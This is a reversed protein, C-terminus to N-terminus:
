LRPSHHPTTPPLANELRAQQAHAAFTSSRLVEMGSGAATTEIPQQNGKLKEVAEEVLEMEHNCVPQDNKLWCTLSEAIEPYASAYELLRKAEKEGIPQNCHRRETVPVVAREYHDHLRFGAWLCWGSVGFAVPIGALVAAWFWVGGPVRCAAIFAALPAAVTTGLFGGMLGAAVRPWRSTGRRVWPHTVSKKLALLAAPQPTAM